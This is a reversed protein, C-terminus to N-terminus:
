LPYGLRRRAVWLVVALGSLLLLWRSSPEPLVPSTFLFRPATAAPATSASAVRVQYDPYQTAAEAFPQQAPANLDIVSVGNVTMRYLEAFSLYESSRPPAANAPVACALCFLAILVYRM